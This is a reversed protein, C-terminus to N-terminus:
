ENRSRKKEKEEAFKNLRINSIFIGNWKMEKRWEGEQEEEEEETKPWM